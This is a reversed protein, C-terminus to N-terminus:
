GMRNQALLGQLVKNIHSHVKHMDASSSFRFKLGPFHEIKLYVNCLLVSEDSADAHTMIDKWGQLREPPVMRTVSMLAHAEPIKYLVADM